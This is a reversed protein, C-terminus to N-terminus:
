EGLRYNKFKKKNPLRVWEDKILYGDKRLEYIYHQLDTIYLENFCIMDNIHDHKEMYALIEEKQTMYPSKEEIDWSRKVFEENIKEEM